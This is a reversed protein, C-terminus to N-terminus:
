HVIPPPLFIATRIDQLTWGVASNWCPQTVGYGGLIPTIAPFPGKTRIQDTVPNNMPISSLLPRCGDSKLQIRANRTRRSHVAQM